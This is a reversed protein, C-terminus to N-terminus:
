YRPTIWPAKEDLKEPQISLNNKFNKHKKIFINLVVSKRRAKSNSSIRNGHIVSRSNSVQHSILVRQYMKGTVIFVLILPCIETTWLHYKILRSSKREVFTSSRYRHSFIHSALSTLLTKGNDWQLFYSLRMILNGTLFISGTTWYRPLSHCTKWFATEFHHIKM